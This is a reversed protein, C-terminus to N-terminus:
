MKTVNSNKHILSVHRKLSYKRATSFNCHQCEFSLGLHKPKVHKEYCECKRKYHVGCVKCCYRSVGDVKIETIWQEAM